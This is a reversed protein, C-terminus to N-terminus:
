RISTRDNRQRTKARGSALPMLARYAVDHIPTPIGVERGLRVIAGSFYSLEMPRGAELDELMSPRGDPPMLKVQDLVIDTIDPPLSVGLARGVASAETAADLVLSLAEPSDLVPGIPLRALCAVASFSALMLFKQWIVLDISQPIAADIGLGQNLTVALHAARDSRSCDAEAFRIKCFSSKCVIEGPARLFSKITVSGKLVSSSGLSAGLISHSDVGNQL